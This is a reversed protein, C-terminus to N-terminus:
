EAEEGVIKVEAELLVNYKRSVVDQIHEMLRIVDNASANGKNVIFNAHRNSVIADKVRTGKLGAKDILFGAPPGSEPNKFFCGPGMPDLPQSLRRKKLLTEAQIKLEKGDAPYLKFKGEMLVPPGLPDSGNRNNVVLARYSFDLRDKKLEETKGSPWLVTIAEVVNEMAGKHTGANMMIGGGVTGPIGLAFNLGGLGKEIAYRCLRHLKVGASACVGVSKESLDTKTIKDLCKDTLIVVGRIGGDKVLLNSGKGMVLYPIRCAECWEVLEVLDEKIIPRVLVDAPGGIKFWTHRSMPENFQAIEGFRDLLWKKSEVSLM